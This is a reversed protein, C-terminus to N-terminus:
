AKPLGLQVMNLVHPGSVWFNLAVDKDILMIASINMGKKFIHERLRVKFVFLFEAYFIYIFTTQIPCLHCRDQQAFLNFDLINICIVPYLNNYKKGRNSNPVTSNPGTICLATGSFKVAPHRCKLILSREQKPFRRSIWCQNRTLTYPKGM